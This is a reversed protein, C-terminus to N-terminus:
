INIIEICHETGRDEVPPPTMYDGYINRLIGDANNPIHITTNEFPVDRGEGYWASPVEEKFKYPTWFNVALLEKNMSYRKMSKEVSEKAKKTDINKGVHTKEEVKMIIKEYWPRNKRHQHILEDYKSLQVLMRRYLLEFKHLKNKLPNKPMGDLAWIDMWLNDEHSINATKVLVRTNLKNIRATYITDDESDRFTLIKLDNPLYEQGHRVFIEYDERSLSVDIDDDWPIFGSHRLAGILTGNAAYYTLGLAHCAHKFHEFMYLEEQHLKSLGENIEM